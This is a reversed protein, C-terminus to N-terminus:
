WLLNVTSPYFTFAIFYKRFSPSPNTLTVIGVLFFSWNKADHGDETVFSPCVDWVEKMSPCSSMGKRDMYCVHGVAQSLAEIM